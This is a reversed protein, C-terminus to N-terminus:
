TSGTHNIHIANKFMLVSVFKALDSRFTYTLNHCKKFLRLITYSIKFTMIDRPIIKKRNRYKRALQWKVAIFFNIM